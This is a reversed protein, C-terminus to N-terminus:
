SFVGETEGTSQRTRRKFDLTYHCDNFREGTFEPGGAFDVKGDWGWFWPYERIPRKPEKGRDKTWKIKPAVRLVGAGKTKIDPVTLFPRINLRVGDNLDPEWGIPQKRLPKWRVFIDYPSEGELILELRKKLVEAADLREKAGDVGSALDGKQRSIWDGLYTFILTELNKRDLKHYNVLASFGDRLGDWIQWVFPRQHFLDCHQAFFGDRLWAELHKGAFGADNLLASLVDTHWEQDYAKALLNLLRDAASAEGRVPPICIIGDKDTYPLLDSFRQSLDQSRKSHNLRKLLEAPWRYGVLHAVTIQLATKGRGKNSSDTNLAQEACGHFVWQTPDDSEAEPFGVPYKKSAVNSWYKLDFRSKLLTKNTVKLTQDLERIAIPFADSSLFSLLASNISERNKAFVVAVNNDFHEGYYPVARLAGIRNVAVGNKGWARNGSEHMDHLQDRADKAYSHLQGNGGEWLLVESVDGYIESSNNSRRYPVWSKNDAVIEWFKKTFREIDGTVIGQYCEAVQSITAGDIQLGFRVRMDPNNLQERQKTFMIELPVNGRLMAAKSEPEKAASVDIGAMIHEEAPSLASIMPLAVNVVHGTITEFAGPGLKAVVNWSRNELLMQRLKTYTTLFLWNQPTVIATTGGKDCFELCRLVFATALDAKGLPYHTELHGKLVEDQKGRGLYPVNTTVLTYRGALLEAAKAIGQAAIGVESRETVSKAEGALAATLARHLNAMGMDDLLGSGLFRHPNILSGLTSAKSFLDYLQGFYFRLNSVVPQGALIDMWQERSSGVSIGTCAINPAPLQRYGALRWAALALNFAAIEICRRDIELGFLNDRLVAEAAEQVLMGEDAMRMAALMLFAVALFHGSGCCPDLMKFEGLKEPWGGFVGAASKWQGNEQKVFRLYELPMGPLSAKRRLEAENEANKLDAETLRRAAWWAGLSNDLLFAVMYSETFLQTVAPLERAGIKVESANVEDKKKAQWFQYVWGLSDSATFVELPLDAVLRELKQQYEPPLSLQFVPSDLRFIQPLMRAAFRAALEWVSGAQEEGDDILGQCTELDVDIPDDDGDPWYMLLNNEALFRAFLMRHWHEYAVEEILRDMTQIKGGNLTDGLQRGHVRLKRRLERDQESLHAFPAAEGVGLHELAARAANEAIDRAQRINKELKNRLTKDLPQM